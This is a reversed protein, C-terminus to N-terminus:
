QEVAQLLEDELQDEQIQEVEQEVMLDEGEVKREIMDQLRAKYDDVIEDTGELDQVLKTMLEQNEQSIEVDSVDAPHNRVEEPYAVQILVLGDSDYTLAYLNERRAPAYKVMVAKHTQKLSNLLLKYKKEADEKPVLNYSNQVTKHQLDSKNILRQVELKESGASKRVEKVADSDFVYIEDGLEYGKAHKERPIIEETEEDIYRRRLRNGTEMNVKHFPSSYRDTAGVLGLPIEMGNLNIKTNRYVM